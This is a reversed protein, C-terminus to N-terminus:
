PGNKNRLSNLIEETIFFTSKKLDEIILEIEMKNIKDKAYMRKLLGITWSIRFDDFKKINAIKLFLNDSNLNSVVKHMKKDDTIFYYCKGKLYFGLFALLFTSIEGGHLYPYRSELYSFLTSYLNNDTPNLILLNSGFQKVFKKDFKECEKCVERSTVIKYPCRPIIKISTIEKIFSSIVTNDLIKTTVEM